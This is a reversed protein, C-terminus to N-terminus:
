LPVPPASAPPSVSSATGMLRNRDRHFCRPLRCWSRSFEVLCRLFRQRGRRSFILPQRALRTLSSGPTRGTRLDKCAQSFCYLQLRFKGSALSSVLIRLIDLIPSYLEFM